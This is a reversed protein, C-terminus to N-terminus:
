LLGTKIGSLIKALASLYLRDALNSGASSSAEVFQAKVLVRDLVVKEFTEWTCDPRTEDEVHACWSKLMAWAKYDAGLKILADARELSRRTSLEDISGTAFIEQWATFQERIQDLHEDAAALAQATTGIM